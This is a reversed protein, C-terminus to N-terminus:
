AWSKPARIAISNFKVRVGGTVKNCGAINLDTLRSAM